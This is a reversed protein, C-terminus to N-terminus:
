RYKKIAWNKMWRHYRLLIYPINNLGKSGTLYTVLVDKEPGDGDQLERVTYNFLDLDKHDSDMTGLAAQIRPSWALM